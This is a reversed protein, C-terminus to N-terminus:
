QMQAIADMIAKQTAALADAPSQAGSWISVVAQGVPGWQASAYPSSAMPIGLALSKGFEAVAYLAAVEPDNLAGTAAPITKNALAVPKQGEASAFYEAVALADEANGRDVANKSLMLTKVGVFPKGMQTIGYNLGAEEVGAVAWPGTWWMGYKGEKLGALCIDYSTEADSVKSLSSIWEGAALAEPTDLYAKGTEDVYSPLGFGFFIPAAHYADGGGTGTLAQNCILPFGKDAKFKEAKALLDAFDMPDTPLYEETVIDKNYILAIGEQSEPIGWIGGSYQVGAVAAPEYNAELFPVDVGLTTLDVINGALAQTGIADNAWAIIDPGEGAPIAVTIANAIDQTFTLEVKVCPNVTATYNAFAAAIADLYAGSWGHWISITKEGDPCAATEATPAMTAEPAMTPEAPAVTPEVPAATPEEAAPATTPAVTAAGGCATLVMTAILLMSALIWIKKNM